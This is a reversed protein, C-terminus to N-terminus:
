RQERKVQAIYASLAVNMIEEAEDVSFNPMNPLDNVLTRLHHAAADRGAFHGRPLGNADLALDAV